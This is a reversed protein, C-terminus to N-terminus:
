EVRVAWPGNADAVITENGDGDAYVAVGNNDLGNIILHGLEQTMENVSEGDEGVAFGEGADNGARWIAAYDKM